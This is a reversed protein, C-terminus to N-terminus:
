DDNQKADGVLTNRILAKLQAEAEGLNATNWRVTHRHETDFHTEVDKKCVYFVPKGLGEAFGAEWYAGANKDSLDAILFRCSRIEHEIIADILGAKQTVTRLEYGTAAVAPRLCRDVVDNLEANEFKRALFAYQSQAVAKTATTYREWGSFTLRIETEEVGANNEEICGVKKIENFLWFLDDNDRVGVIGRMEAYKLSSYSGFKGKARDGILLILNTAAESFDPLKRNKLASMLLEYDIKPRKERRQLNRIIHSALAILNPRRACEAPWDDALEDTVSFEGCQPCITHVWGASKTRQANSTCIPCEQLQYM